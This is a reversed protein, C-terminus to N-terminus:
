ICMTVVFGLHGLGKKNEICSSGHINQAYIVAAMQQSQWKFRVCTKDQTLVGVQALM